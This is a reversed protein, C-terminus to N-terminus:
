DGLGCKIRVNPSLGQNLRVTGLSIGNKAGLDFTNPFLVIFDVTSTDPMTARLLESNARQV